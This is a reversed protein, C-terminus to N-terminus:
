VVITEEEGEEGEKRRQRKLSVGKEARLMEKRHLTSEAGDGGQVQGGRELEGRRQRSGNKKSGEIKGTQEIVEPSKGL